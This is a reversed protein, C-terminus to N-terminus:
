RGVARVLGAQALEVGALAETLELRSLLEAVQADLRESSPLLGEQYLDTTVRTNERASEIAREAVTVGALATGLREFGEVVQARISRELEQARRRAIDVEAVAAAAAADRQGGDFLDYTLGVSVDWSTRFDYEPPVVRRDPNSYRLNGEVAVVPKRQAHAADLRAEAAAVREMAAKHEPRRDLATDVLEALNDPLDAGDLTDTPAIRTGVPLDLLVALRDRTTEVLSAALLRRLEARDRETRVALAENSAALGLEERNVADVLFAEFSRISEALVREQEIALVLEWYTSTVLHELDASAAELDLNRAAIDREAAAVEAEVRGGTYLPLSGGLEFLVNNPLNPYVVTPVGDQLITWEPVNNWRSYGATFDLKPMRGSKAGALGAEALAVYARLEGLRPALGEALRVAEDLGLNIVRGAQPEAGTRPAQEDAQGASPEAPRTPSAGDSRESSRAAAATPLMSALGCASALLIAAATNM